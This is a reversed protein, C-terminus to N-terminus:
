ATGTAENLLRKKYSPDVWARAVVRAGNRPGVRNEYLDVTADIDAPNVMGKEVLLSELAKVRLAVDSPVAQGHDRRPGITQPQPVAAVGPVLAAAGKLFDRRDVPPSKPELDADM